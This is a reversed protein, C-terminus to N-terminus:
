LDSSVPDMVCRITNRSVNRTFDTKNAIRFTEIFENDEQTSSLFSASTKHPLGDNFLYGSPIGGLACDDTGEIMKDYENPWNKSIAFFTSDTSKMRSAVAADNEGSVKLFTELNEWEKKTPIHWGKPCITNALITDIIGIAKGNEIISYYRGFLNCMSERCCSETKCNHEILECYQKLYESDNCCMSYPADYRLNEAMWVQDGITTYRYVNGDREDTFTGRNPMGYANTGTEPCVKAADWKEEESDDFICAALVLPMVLPILLIPIIAKREM